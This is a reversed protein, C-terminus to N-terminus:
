PRAVLAFRGEQSVRAWFTKRAADFGVIAPAAACTGSVDAPATLLYAAAYPRTSLCGAQALAQWRGAGDQRALLVQEPKVDKPLGFELVYRDGQGEGDLTWGKSAAAPLQVPRKGAESGDGLSGPLGAATAIDKARGYPDIYTGGQGATGSVSLVESQLSETRPEWALILQKKLDITTARVEVEEDAQGINVLRARQSNNLNPRWSEHAIFMHRQMLSLLERNNAAETKGPEASMSRSRTDHRNFSLNEGDLVRAVLGQPSPCASSRYSTDYANNRQIESPFSAPYVLKECRAASRRFRDFLQWRPQALEKPGDENKMVSHEAYWAKFDLVDDRFDLISANVDLTGTAETRAKLMLTNQVLEHEGFRNEYGKYSASGSVIQMFNRQAPDRILSRAYLHEHGSVYVVDHDALLKRYKEYVGKFAVDGEESKYGEVIRERLLGYKNGVFSNHTQLVIHRAQAKHKLITQEVFDYAFPMWGYSINILLVGKRLLAYNKNRAGAMHEADAPIFDAVLDHWDQDMGKNDHNGMIPLFTMFPKYAEAVERWQRYEAASGNEALDGVVLVVDVKQQKYLELLARMPHVSVNSGGGQTDPLVGVSLAKVAPPAPEPAPAPVGDGGGGCAALLMTMGLLASSTTKSIKM